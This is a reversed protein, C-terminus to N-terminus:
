ATVRSAGEGANNLEEPRRFYFSRATWVANPSPAPAPIIDGCGSWQCGRMPNGLPANAGEAEARVRWRPPPQRKQLTVMWEHRLAWPKGDERACMSTFLCVCVCACVCVKRISESWLALSARMMGGHRDIPVWLSSSNSGLKLAGQSHLRPSSGHEEAM